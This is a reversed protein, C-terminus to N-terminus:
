KTLLYKRVARNHEELTKSFYHQGGGKAVFFLADTKEPQAVAWIAAKSPLAIPTPPLGDIQYTNYDTKERIDKKRINGKYRAEMGYIITPDTQLRMKKKLRNEFVGAIKAREPAHGTEKEVISALILVEYPTSLPLDKSRQKWAADLESQMARYARLLIQKDSDGQQYHYTEPLLLGELNAYPYKKSIPKDVGFLAQLAEVDSFDLERQIKPLAELTSLTQKFTQGAILTVPYQVTKGTLLEDVLRAPKWTPSISFEGAKLLHHKEVYRLYWVFYDPKDLVGAQELRQAVKSANDGKQIVVVKPEEGQAIPAEVFNHWTRFVFILFFVVALALTSIRWTWKSFNASIKSESM